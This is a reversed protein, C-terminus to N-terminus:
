KKVRVKALKEVWIVWMAFIVIYFFPRLISDHLLDWKDPWYIVSICLVVIRFINVIHIIILGVPIYWLKKLWPGPFLIMLIIWQYFQKLGSCDGLIEVAGNNEMIITYGSTSIPFQLVSKLFWVSQLFVHQTLFNETNQFALIHLLLDKLGHWWIYHFFVTIIVFIAVDRLAYLKYKRIIQLLKQYYTSIM